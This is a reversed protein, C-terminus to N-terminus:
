ILITKYGFIDDKLTSLFVIKNKSIRKPIDSASFLGDTVIVYTLAEDVINNKDDKFFFDLETGGGGKLAERFDWQRTINKKEFCKKTDGSVVDIQFGLDLANCISINIKEICEDNLQSGSVDICLKIKSKKIRIKGIPSPYRRSPKKMTSKKNFNRNTAYFNNVSKKFDKIRRAKYYGELFITLDASSSGIGSRVKKSEDSEGQLLDKLIEKAEPSESIKEIAEKNIRESGSEKLVEDLGSGDHEDINKYSNTKQPNKEQAKKLLEYLQRSTTNKVNLNSYQDIIKLAILDKKIDDFFVGKKLDANLKNKDKFSLALDNIICDMSINALQKNDFKPITFVHSLIIHYLEHEIIAALNTTDFSDLWNENILILFRKSDKLFGACATQIKSTSRINVNKLLFYVDSSSENLKLIVRYVSKEQKKTLNKM